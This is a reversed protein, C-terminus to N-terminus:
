LLDVFLKEFYELDHDDLTITVFNAFNNLVVVANISADKSELDAIRKAVNYNLTEIEKYISNLQTLDWDPEKGINNKLMQALLYFSFVRFQTEELSAFPLHLRVMPKLKAMIPCGSTPMLIGILGSVGIQISTNKTYTRDNTEVIIEAEEYSAFDSFFEIIESLSLALPCNPTYLKNLPCHPCAFNEMITWDPYDLKLKPVYLMSNLDIKINFSKSKGDRFNFIYKYNLEGNKM